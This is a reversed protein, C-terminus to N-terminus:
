GDGMIRKHNEKCCKGCVCHTNSLLAQIPNEFPKKCQMCFGHGKDEKEQDKVM